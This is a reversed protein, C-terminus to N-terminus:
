YNKSTTLTNTPHLTSQMNSIFATAQVKLCVAAIFCITSTKVLEPSENKQLVKVM